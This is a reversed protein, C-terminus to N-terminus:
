KLWYASGDQHRDVFGYEIIYRRITVYDDFYQKITENIERETYTRGKELKSCIYKLIVIKRKEKAPFQKVKGTSQEIYTDLIKQEENETIAWRDDVMTAEKHVDIFSETLGGEELLEMMSLFIKAQKAKERLKFRHQRVTASNINLEAAIATDKKGAYLASLIQKQHDNLGTHRKGLEILAQFPSGHVHLIHEKMEREADLLEGERKYIVGHKTTFNCHLCHFYDTNKQFFYGNKLESVRRNLGKEM